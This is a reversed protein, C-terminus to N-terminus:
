LAQVLSDALLGQARGNEVVPIGGIGRQLMTEVLDTAQMEPPVTAAQPCSIASSELTGSETIRSGTPWM